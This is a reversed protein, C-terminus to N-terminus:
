IIGSKELQYKLSYRNQFAEHTDPLLEVTEQDIVEYEELKRDYLHWSANMLKITYELSKLEVSYEIIDPSPSGENSNKPYNDLKSQAIDRFDEKFLVISRDEDIRWNEIYAVTEISIKDHFPECIVLWKLTEIENTDDPRIQLLAKAEDNLQCFKYFAKYAYSLRLVQISKPQCDKEFYRDKEILQFNELWYTLFNMSITKHNRTLENLRDIVNEVRQPLNNFTQRIM